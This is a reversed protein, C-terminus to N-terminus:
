DDPEGASPAYTQLMLAIECDHWRKQASHHLRRVTAMGLDRASAQHRGRCPSSAPAARARCASAASTKHIMTLGQWCPAEAQHLRTGPSFGHGLWNGGITRGSSNVAEDNCLSASVQNHKVLLRGMQVGQGDWPRRRAPRRHSPQGRSWRRASRGSRPAPPPRVAGAALPQGSRARDPPRPVTKARDVPM